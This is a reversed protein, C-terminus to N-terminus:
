ARLFGTDLELCLQTARYLALAAGTGPAALYRELLAALTDLGLALLAPRLGHLPDGPGALHLHGSMAKRELQALLTDLLRGHALPARAAAPAPAAQGRLMRTLRAALTPRAPGADFDLSLPHLRGARAVLLTVPELLGDGGGRELRAVIGLIAEGAGHWAELNDLRTRKWAAWPMRLALAAGHRDHVQWRLEQRAEDLRPAACAAPRLLVLDLPEGLLGASGAVAARLASWDDFGADLWRADDSRWAAETRARTVGGLGLRGDDALRPQELVLASGALAAPAGAGQWLSSQSWAGGRSFGPDGGDRRAQVAQRVCGAAPDWFATTLGRAGSRTEWWWAGLPLLELTAGAEFSRREVGRLAALLGPDAAVASSALADALAHVQAALRLADREDAGFDRRALLDATGALARLLGALRPFSEVRASTALARLRPAATEGVHSWGGHCLEHVLARAAHLFRREDADPGPATAAAAAAAAAAPAAQPWPFARGHLRWAAALALLHLAKRARAEAESVMGDFGAGAVYRCMSDLGPLAIVLVAGQVTAEAGDLTAFMAAAKRTAAAGAARWLAPPDLALVEALVDPSAPAAAPGSAPEPAPESASAPTSAAADAAPVAADTAPAAAGANARLWLTAALIHKCIGPAPCDCRAAGPGRPALAVQQGDAAVVGRAAGDDPHWGVKGAELDKAARRLLGSSALAALAEDDYHRYAAGWDPAAATTSASM